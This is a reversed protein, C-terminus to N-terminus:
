GPEGGSKKRKTTPRDALDLLNFILFHLPYRKKLWEFSFPERQAARRGERKTKKELERTLRPLAKAYGENEGQLWGHVNAITGHSTQMEERIDEYSRGELLMRAIRIRRAFMLAETESLLDRFFNKVEEKTELLTVASWLEDLLDDRERKPRMRPQVKAM